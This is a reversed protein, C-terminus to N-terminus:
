SPILTTTRSEENRFIGLDIRRKREPIKQDLDTILAALDKEVELPPATIM